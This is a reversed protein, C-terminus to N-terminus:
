LHPVRAREDPEGFKVSGYRGFAFWLLVVFVGLTFWLFLFGFQHTIFSLPQSGAGGLEEGPLRDPARDGGGGRDPRALLGAQRHAGIEDGLREVDSM